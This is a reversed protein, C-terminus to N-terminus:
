LLHEIATLWRMASFWLAALGTLDARPHPSIFRHAGRNTSAPTAQRLSHSHNWTGHRHGSSEVGRVRTVKKAHDSKMGAMGLSILICHLPVSSCPQERHRADRVGSGHGRQQRRTPHPITAFAQLNEMFSVRPGMVWCFRGDWELSWKKAPLNNGDEATGPERKALRLKVAFRLQGCEVAGIDMWEDGEGTSRPALHCPSVLRKAARACRRM